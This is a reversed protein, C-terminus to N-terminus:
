TGLTSRCVLAWITLWMSNVALQGPRVVRYNELEADTRKQEDHEYERPVVGRYESVSLMSGVPNAGNREKSETFLFRLREVGWGDPIQPFENESILRQKVKERQSHSFNM